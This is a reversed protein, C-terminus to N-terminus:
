IGNETGTVDRHGEIHPGDEGGGTLGGWGEIWDFPGIGASGGDGIVTETSM